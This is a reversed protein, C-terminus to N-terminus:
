QHLREACRLCAYSDHFFSDEMPSLKINRSRPLDRPVYHNINEAITPRLFMLERTRDEKPIRDEGRGSGALGLGPGGVGRCGRDISCISSIVGSWWRSLHFHDAKTGGPGGGNAEAHVNQRRRQSCATRKWETPLDTPPPPLEDVRRHRVEATSKLGVLSLRTGICM